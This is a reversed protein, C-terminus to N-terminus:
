ESFDAGPGTLREIERFLPTGIMKHLESGKPAHLTQPARRTKGGALAVATKISKIRPWGLSKLAQKVDIPRVDTNHENRIQFALAKSNVIGRELMAKENRELYLDIVSVSDSKTDEVMDELTETIVPTRTPDFNTLDVNLLYDFAIEIGGNDMWTLFRDVDEKALAEDQSECILWRRETAEVHIADFHNSTMYFSWFPFTPVKGSGKLNMKQLEGADLTAYMKLQEYSSRSLASLEQVHLIKKHIFEDEYASKMVRDSIISCAGAFIRMLPAFMLDKGAGHVGVILPHWNCKRDPFQVDYAMRNILHEHLTHDPIVMAILELWPWVDGKEPKVDYGRWTNFYDTNRITEVRDYAPRFPETRMDEHWRRPKWIRDDVRVLDESELLVTAILPDGRAGTHVHRYMNNLSTPSFETGTKASIFAGAGSGMWVYTELYGFERLQNNREAKRERRSKIERKIMKPLESQLWRNLKPKDTRRDVYNPAAAASKMIRVIQDYNATVRLLSNVASTVLDSPDDADDLCDENKYFDMFAQAGENEDKTALAAMEFIVGQDSVIEPEDVIKEDDAEDDIHRTLPEVFSRLTAKGSKRSGDSPSGSAQMGTITLFRAKTYVEVKGRYFSKHRTRHKPISGDMLIHYGNGSPSLEIYACDDFDDLIQEAEDQWGDVDDLDIAVLGCNEYLVIGIGASEFELAIDVATDFDVFKEHPDIKKGRRDIPVKAGKSTTWVVWRPYDKLDSPLADWLKERKSNVSEDPRQIM